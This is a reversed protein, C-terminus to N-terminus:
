ITGTEMENHMKKGMQNETISLCDRKGGYLKM